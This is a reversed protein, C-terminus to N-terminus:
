AAAKRPLRFVAHISHHQMQKGVGTKPGEYTRLLVLGDDDDDGKSYWFVDLGHDIAELIEPALTDPNYKISNADAEGVMLHGQKHWRRVADRVVPITMKVVVQRREDTENDAKMPFWSNLWHGGFVILLHGTARHELLVFPLGRSPTPFPWHMAKGSRHFRHYGVVRRRLRGKRVVKFVRNDWSISQKRDTPPFYHQFHLPLGRRIKGRSIEQGIVIDAARVANTVEGETMNHGAVEIVRDPHQERAERDRALALGEDVPRSTSTNSNSVTVFPNGTTPQDTETMTMTM